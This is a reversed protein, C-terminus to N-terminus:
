EETSCPSYKKAKMHKKLKVITAIPLHMSFTTNKISVYIMSFANLMSDIILNHFQLLVQSIINQVQMFTDVAM